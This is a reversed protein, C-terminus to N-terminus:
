GQYVELHAAAWRPFGFAAAREAAHEAFRAPAALVAALAQGFATPDDPSVLRGDVGDRVLDPVGGVRTAVIPLGHALGELVVMPCAESDSSLAVVDAGAYIAHVDGVHGAFVVREGAGMLSARVSLSKAEPGDGCLVLQADPVQPLANLLVDFRKIRTLRGLAVIIPRNGDLRFRAVLAARAAPRDFPAPLRVGNPIVTAGPLQAAVSSSVAIVRHSARVGLSVAAGVKARGVWGVQDFGHVTYARVQAGSLRGLAAAKYAHAHFVEVGDASVAARLARALAPSARRGTPFLRYPLGTQAVRAQLADCGAAGARTELVAHIRSDVGAEALAVALECAVTEAGGVGGACIVQAVRM